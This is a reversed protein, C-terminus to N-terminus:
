RRHTLASGGREMRFHTRGFEPNFKRGCDSCRKPSARTVPAANAQLVAGKKVRRRINSEHVIRKQRPSKPPALMIAKTTSVSPLSPTRWKSVKPVDPHSTADREVSPMTHKM